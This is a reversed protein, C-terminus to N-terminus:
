LEHRLQDREGYGGHNEALDRYSERMTKVKGRITVTKGGIRVEQDPYKVLSPNQAATLPGLVKDARTNQGTRVDNFVRDMYRIAGNDGLNNIVALEATSVTRGAPADGKLWEEYKKIKPTIDAAFMKANYDPKRCLNALEIKAAHNKPRYHYISRGKKDKAYVYQTVLERAEPYGNARGHTYALRYLTQVEPTPMLQFLGCAETYKNVETPICSSERACVAVIMERPLTASQIKNFAESVDPRLTIRRKGVIYIETGDNQKEILKPRAGYSVPAVRATPAVFALPMNSEPTLATIKKITKGAPEKIVPKDTKEPAPTPKVPKNLSEIPVWEEVPKVAKPPQAIKDDVIEVTPLTTGSKDTQTTSPKKALARRELEAAAAALSEQFVPDISENKAVVISPRVSKSGNEEWIVGDAVPLPKKVTRVEDHPADPYPVVGYTNPPMEVPITIDASSSTDKVKNDQWKEIAHDAGLILAVTIGSGILTNFMTKMRGSSHEPRKYHNYQNPKPGKAM